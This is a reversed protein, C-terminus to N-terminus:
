FKVKPGETGELGAVGQPGTPGREGISGQEGKEGDHGKGFCVNNCNIYLNYVIVSKERIERKELPVGFVTM